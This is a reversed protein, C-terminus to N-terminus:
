EAAELRVFEQIELGTVGSLYAALTLSPSNLGREIESLHSPTVRYGAYRESILSCVGALTQDNMQRWRRLAHITDM